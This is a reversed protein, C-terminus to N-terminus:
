VGENEFCPSGRVRDKYLQTWPGQDWNPRKSLRHCFRYMAYDSAVIKEDRLVKFEGNLGKPNKVLLSFLM